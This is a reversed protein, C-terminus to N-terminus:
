GWLLSWSFEMETSVSTLELHYIRESLNIGHELSGNYYTFKHVTTVIPFTNQKWEKLYAQQLHGTALETKLHLVPRKCDMLDGHLALTATAWSLARRFVYIIIRLRGRHGHKHCLAMKEKTFAQCQYLWWITTIRKRNYNLRLFLLLIV